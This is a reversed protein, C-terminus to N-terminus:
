WGLNNGDDSGTFSCHRLASGDWSILVYQNIEIAIGFDPLLKWSKITHKGCSVYFVAFSKSDDNLDLHLTNTHNKSIEYSLFTESM